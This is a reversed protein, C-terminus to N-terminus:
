SGAQVLAFRVVYEVDYEDRMIGVISEATIARLVFRPPLQVTHQLVGDPDFVDWYSTRPPLGIAFALAVPDPELDPRRIWLWGDSSAQITSTVPVYGIRPYGARTEYTRMSAGRVESLTDYHTRARRMVAGVLADDVPISDHARTVRRVLAGDADYTDVVYPWGRAVHVFGRGDVARAPTPEFFPYNGLPFLESGGESGLSYFVRGGLYMTVPVLLSDAAARSATVAHLDAAAVRAITSPTRVVDGARERQQRSFLSDDSVLWGAATAGVPSIRSGNPLLSPFTTLLVGTTDFLASTFGRGQDLLHVTDRWLFLGAARTFEGPGQGPRGFGRVFTGDRDYIRVTHGGADAVFIRGNPDVAVGAIRFFQYEEPGDLVGIRLEEVLELATTDAAASLNRVLQVGASDTVEVRAAADNSSAEGCAGLFCALAVLAGARRRAASAFAAPRAPM